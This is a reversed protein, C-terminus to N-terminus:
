CFLSRNKQKCPVKFFSAQLRKGWCARIPDCFKPIGFYIPNPTFSIATALVFFLSLSKPINWWWIFIHIFFTTNVNAYMQNSHWRSILMIKRRKPLVLLLNPHTCLVFLPLINGYLVGYQVNTHQIYQNTFPPRSLHYQKDTVKEVQSQDNALSGRRENTSVQSKLVM